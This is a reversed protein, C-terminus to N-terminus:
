AEEREELWQRCRRVTEADAERDIEPDAAELLFAVIEDAVDRDRDRTAM